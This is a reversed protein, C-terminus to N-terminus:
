IYPIAPSKRAQVLQKSYDLISTTTTILMLTSPLRWREAGGANKTVSGFALAVFFLSLLLLKIGENRKFLKWGKKLAQFCLSFLILAQLSSGAAFATHVNWPMPSFMFYFCHIPLYWIWDVPTRPYVGELYGSNGEENDRMELYGLASESSEFIMGSHNGQSLQQYIGVMSFTILLTLIISIFYLIPRIYPSIKLKGVQTLFALSLIPIFYAIYHIRLYCSFFIGLCTYVQVFLNNRAKPYSIIALLGSIGVLVVLVSPASRGVEINYRLWTPWFIVIAAQLESLNKGFIIQNIWVLPAIAAVGLAANFTRIIWLGSEGFTNFIWGPYLICYFPVHPEIYSLPDTSVAQSFRKFYPLYDGIDADGFFHTQEQIFILFLRVIFGLIVIFLYKNFFTNIWIFLLLTIVAVLLISSFNSAM